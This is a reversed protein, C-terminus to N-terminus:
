FLEWKGHNKINEYMSDPSLDLEGPWTVAGYEVSVQNFLAVNRLKAFVGARDSQLLRSLDVDGNLGDMFTVNLCYQPRAMVQAVRWPASIKVGLACNQTTNSKSPM